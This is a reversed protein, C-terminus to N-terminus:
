DEVKQKEVCDAASKVLKEQTQIIRLGSEGFKFLDQYLLRIDGTDMLSLSRNKANEQEISGQYVNHAKDFIGSTFNIATQIGGQASSAALYLGASAWSMGTELYSALKEQPTDNGKLHDYAGSRKLVWNAISTVGAAVAVLSTTDPGNEKLSYLGGFLTATSLLTQVGDSISEWKKGSAFNQSIEIQRNTRNKEIKKIKELQTDIQSEFIKVQFSGADNVRSLIAAIAYISNPAQKIM